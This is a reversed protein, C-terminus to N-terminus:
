GTWPINKLNCVDWCTCEVNPQKILSFLFLKKFTMQNCISTEMEYLMKDGLTGVLRVCSVRCPFCSEGTTLMGCCDGSEVEWSEVKRETCWWTADTSFRLSSDKPSLLAVITNSLFHAMWKCLFPFRYILKWWNIANAEADVEAWLAIFVASIDVAGIRDGGFYKKGNILEDELVKLCSNANQLAATEWGRDWCVRM